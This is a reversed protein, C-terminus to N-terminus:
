LLFYTNHIRYFLALQLIFNLTKSLFFIIQQINFQFGFSTLAKKFVDLFALFTFHCSIVTAVFLSGTNNPPLIFNCSECYPQARVRARSSVLIFSLVNFCETPHPDPRPDIIAFFLVHITAYPRIRTELIKDRQLRFWGFL